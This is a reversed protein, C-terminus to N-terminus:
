YSWNEIQNTDESIAIIRVPLGDMKHIKIPMIFFQYRGAPIDRLELGEIILIENSLLIKHVPLDNSEYKDVSIYDIGVIKVRKKVLEEAAESEIYVYNKTFNSYKSINSNSTKFFVFDDLLFNQKIIYNKKITTEAQPIEIIVGSGIFYEISFDDSTKGEQIVHSPFDIHTGIHNSLHIKCLHFQQGKELSSLSDMQYSPDGPFTVLDESITTTIDYYKIKEFTKQNM